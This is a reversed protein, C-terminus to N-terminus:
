ITFSDQTPNARVTFYSNSAIHCDSTLFRLTNTLVSLIRLRYNTIFDPSKSREKINVIESNKYTRSYVHQQATSHSLNKRQDNNEALSFKLKVIDLRSNLSSFFFRIILNCKM